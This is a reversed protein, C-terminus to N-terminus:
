PPNKFDSDSPRDSKKELQAALDDRGTARALQLRLALTEPKGLEEDEMAALMEAASEYDGIALAGEIRAHVSPIEGDLPMERYVAWKAHDPLEKAGDVQELYVFDDGDRKQRWHNVAFVIMLGLIVFSAEMFFPTTLVGIMMGIWEGLMGPLYRWGILTGCVLLAVTLLIGAAVVIQKARNDEDTRTM